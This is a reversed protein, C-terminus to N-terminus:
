SVPPKPPLVVGQNEDDNATEQINVAPRTKSRPRSQAQLTKSASASAEPALSDIAQHLAQTTLQSFNAAPDQEGEIYVRLKAKGQADPATLSKVTLTLGPNTRAFAKQLNDQYQSQSKLDALQVQAQLNIAKKM